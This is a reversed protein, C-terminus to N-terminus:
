KKINGKTEKTILKDLTKQLEDSRSILSKTDRKVIISAIIIVILIIYMIIM